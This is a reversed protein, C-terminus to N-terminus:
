NYEAEFITDEILDDHVYVVVDGEYHPLDQSCYDAYHKAEDENEFEKLQGFNVVDGEVEEIFNVSYRKNM